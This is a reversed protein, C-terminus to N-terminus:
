DEDLYRLDCECPWRLPGAPLALSAFPTWTRLDWFKLTGDRSGSVLLSEDASVALAVVPAQHAQLLRPPESEEQVEIESAYGTGYMVRWPCSTQAFGTPGDRRANSLWCVGGHELDFVCMNYGENALLLGRGDSTYQIRHLLRVRRRLVSVSLDSLQVLLIRECQPLAIALWERGPSVATAGIPSFEVPLSRRQVVAGDILSWVVLEAPTDRFRRRPDDHPPRLYGVGIFREGDRSVAGGILRGPYAFELRTRLSPIELVRVWGEATAVLAADQSPLFELQTIWSAPGEAVELSNPWPCRPRVRSVDASQELSPLECVLLDGRASGALLWRGRCDCAVARVPTPPEGIEIQERHREVDWVLIKRDDGATALWRDDPSWAVVRRWPPKDVLFGVVQDSQTDFLLLGPLDGRIWCQEQILSALYGAHSWAVDSVTPGQGTHRSTGTHSRFAPLLERWFRCHALGNGTNGAAASEAEFTLVPVSVGERSLSPPAGYKALLVPYGFVDSVLVWNGDIWAVQSGNDSFVVGDSFVVSSDDPLNPFDPRVVRLTDLQVIAADQTTALLRGDPSFAVAGGLGPFRARATGSDPDLLRVEDDSSVAIWEGTPSWAVGRCFDAGWDITRLLQGDALRWIKATGDWSGSILREGDPAFALSDVVDQHGVSRHRLSM